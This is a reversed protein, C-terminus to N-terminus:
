EEDSLGADVEIRALWPAGDPAAPVLRIRYGGGGTPERTWAIEVDFLPERFTARWRQLLAAFSTIPRNAAESGPADAAGAPPRVAPALRPARRGRGRREGQQGM